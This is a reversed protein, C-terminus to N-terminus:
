ETVQLNSTLRISLHHDYIRTKATQCCVRVPTVEIGGNSSVRRGSPRGAPLCQLTVSSPGSHGRPVPYTVRVPSQWPRDYWSPSEFPIRSGQLYVGPPSLRLLSASRLCSLSTFTPIPLPKPRSPDLTPLRSGSVWRTSLAFAGFAPLPFPTLGPLQFASLRRYILRVYLTRSRLGPASDQPVPRLQSPRSLDATKRLRLELARCRLPPERRREKKTGFIKRIDVVIARGPSQRRPV